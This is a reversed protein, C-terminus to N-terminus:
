ISKMKKFMRQSVGSTNPRWWYLSLASLIMVMAYYVMYYELYTIGLCLGLSLFGTIIAPLSVTSANKTFDFSIFNERIVPFRFSLIFGASFLVTFHSLYFFIAQLDFQGVASIFILYILFDVAGLILMFRAYLWFLSTLSATRIVHTFFHSRHIGFFNLGMYTFIILPSAIVYYLLNYAAPMTNGSLMSFALIGLFIIKLTFAILLLVKVEKRSFMRMFLSKRYAAEAKKVKTKRKVETLVYLIFIALFVLMISLFILDSFGNFWYLLMSFAVLTIGLVTILFGHQVEYAVLNVFTRNTLYYSMMLILTLVGDEIGVSNSMVIILVHMLLIFFIFHRLLSFTTSIKLKDIAELPYYTPLEGGIIKPVPYLDLLFLFFGFLMCYVSLVQHVAIAPSSSIIDILAALGLGNTVGGVLASLTYLTFRGINPWKPLAQIKKKLLFAVLSNM